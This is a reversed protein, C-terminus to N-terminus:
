ALYGQKEVEKYDAELPQLWRRSGFFGHQNLQVMEITIGKKEFPIWAGDVERLFIKRSELYIINFDGEVYRVRLVGSPEGSAHIM